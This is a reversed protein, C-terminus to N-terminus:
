KSTKSINTENQKKHINKLINPLLDKHIPPAKPTTDVTPVSYQKNTDADFIITTLM